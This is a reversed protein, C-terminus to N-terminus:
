ISVNAKNIPQLQPRKGTNVTGRLDNAVSQCYGCLSRLKALTTLFLVSELLPCCDYDPAPYLPRLADGNNKFILVSLM